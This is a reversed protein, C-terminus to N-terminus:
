SVSANVRVVTGEADHETTIVGGISKAREELSRMGIGGSTKVESSKWKGNDAVVLRINNGDLSLEVRAKTASAHSIINGVSEQIIRYFEYAVHKPLSSFDGTSYYSIDLDPTKVKELYHSLIEDLSAYEFQPPMLEHSLNRLTERLQSIKQAVEEPKSMNANISMGIGLLENCAGDHLESAFRARERELGELYKQALVKEKRRYQWYFYLAALMSLILLIAVILVIYLQRRTAVKNLRAIETEREQAKLQESLESLQRQVAEGRLTDAASMAECNIYFAQKYNGLGALCNAKQKLYADRPFTGNALAASDVKELLDLAGQYDGKKVKIDTMVELLGSAQIGSSPISAVLQESKQLYQQIKSEDDQQLYTQLLYTLIKMQLPFNETKEAQIITNELITAAKAADGLRLSIVGENARSSLAEVEEGARMAADYAKHCSEIGEKYRGSQSFSIALNNYLFALDEDDGVQQAAKIGEELYFRASDAMGLRRYAIAANGCSVAKDEGYFAEGGELVARRIYKVGEHLDGKIVHISGMESLLAAHLSDDVNLQLAQQIYSIATDIQMKDTLVQALALWTTAMGKEEGKNQYSALASKLLQCASDADGAEFASDALAYLRDGETVKPSQRQCSPAFLIVAILLIASFIPLSRMNNSLKFIFENTM